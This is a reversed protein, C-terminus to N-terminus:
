QVGKYSNTLLTYLLASPPYVNLHVCYRYTILFVHHVIKVVEDDSGTIFYKKRKQIVITLNKLFHLRGSRLCIYIPIRPCMYSIIKNKSANRGIKANFNAFLALTHGFFKIKFIEIHADYFAFPRFRKCMAIFTLSGKKDSKRLFSKQM